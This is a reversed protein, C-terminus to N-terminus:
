FLSYGLIISTTTYSSNYLLYNGLVERTQFRLEVSFKDDLKYGAGFAYNHVASLDLSNLLTNDSRRFEISSKSSVDFVISANIFLKSNNDLFFYHRLSVPVDISTYDIIATYQGGSVTSSTNTKEAKFNQYTPEIAISWKNKNFPLIYEAELGFGFGVKNGFDPTQTNPATSTIELSSSNFRPRLTLNFSDRKKNPAFNVVDNNSCSSYDLFLRILDKRDYEINEITSITINKCKLDSYLQQRFKNNTGLDNNATLYKKYILQEIAGNEKSYFYRKINADVYEYLNSKGEVLVNLFLQEQAFVPEKDVTMNQLNNSSRDINVTSTVYKAVNYIGFEKVTKFSAKKSESGETLRYEFETPNRKTDNNKILCDTKQNANDIFYGKEFTIQSYSSLSVLATFLFLLKKLM